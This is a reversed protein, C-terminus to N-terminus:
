AASAASAAPAPSSSTPPTSDSPSSTASSTDGATESSEVSSTSEPDEVGLARRVAVWMEDLDAEVLPDGDIRVARTRAKFGDLAVCRVPIPNGDKDEHDVCSTDCAAGLELHALMWLRLGLVSAAFARDVGFLIDLPMEPQFRFVVEGIAYEVPERRAATRAARAQNGDLRM